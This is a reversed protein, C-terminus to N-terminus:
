ALCEFIFALFENFQRLWCNPRSLKLLNQGASLQKARYKDVAWDLGKAFPMQKSDWYLVVQPINYQRPLTHRVWVEVSQGWGCMRCFYYASLPLQTLHSSSRSFCKFSKPFYAKVMIFVKSVQYFRLVALQNNPNLRLELSVLKEFYTVNM